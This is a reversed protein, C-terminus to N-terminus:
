DKLTTVILKDGELSMTKVHNWFESRRDDDKIEDRFSLNMSENFSSIANRSLFIGPVQHGGAEASQIDFSFTGYEYSFSFRATGNFWRHKIGPLPISNLPASLAVTMISDAIEIRTRGRFEKFDPDRTLRSRTYRSARGADSAFLGRFQTM